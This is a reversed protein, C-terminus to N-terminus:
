IHLNYTPSLGQMDQPCSTKDKKEGITYTHKLAKPYITSHWIANRKKEKLEALYGKMESIENNTDDLKM